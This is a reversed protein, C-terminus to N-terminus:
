LSSLSRGRLSRQFKMALIVRRHLLTFSLLAGSIAFIAGSAGAVVSAPHIFLSLASCGVAGLIYIALLGLNGFLREVQPGLVWLTCMNVLLHRLGIHVFAASLM